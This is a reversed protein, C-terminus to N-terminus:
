ISIMNKRDIRYRVLVYENSILLITSEQAATLRPQTPSRINESTAIPTAENAITTATPTARVINAIASSNKASGNSSSKLVSKLSKPGVSFSSILSQGKASKSTVRGTDVLDRADLFWM